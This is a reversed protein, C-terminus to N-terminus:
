DTRLEGGWGVCCVSGMTWGAYLSSLWVLLYTQSVIEPPALGQYLGIGAIVSGIAIWPKRRTGLFQFRDSLAGILPDSVADFLRAALLILGTVGLGLGLQVGYLSPLHIYVPITPLAIVLAPLVYAFLISTKIPPATEPAM